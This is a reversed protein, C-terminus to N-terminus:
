FAYGRLTGELAELKQRMSERAEPMDKLASPNMAYPKIIADIQSLLATVQPDNNINLPALEKSLANLNDVFSDHWRKGEGDGFSALKQVFASVPALMRVYLERGAEEVYASIQADLSDKLEQPLTFRFDNSTVVPEPFWQVYLRAEIQSATPYDNPSATAAKGQAILRANRTQVDQSVLSAWSSVIQNKLQDLQSIYGQMKSVYTIYGTNPVLRGGDDGFPLSAKIHYAYMEGATQQYKYIPSTKDVFLERSVIQGEDGLTQKVLAEAAADRVRKHTGGRHLRFKIARNSISAQDLLSQSTVPANM